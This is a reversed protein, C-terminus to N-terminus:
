RKPIGAKDIVEAWKAVDSKIRNHLDASSMGRADMGAAISFKQVEPSKLADAVARNLLSVIDAPTGTPV